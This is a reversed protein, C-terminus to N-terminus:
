CFEVLLCTADDSKKVRIHKQCGPDDHEISRIEDMLEALPENIIRKYLHEYSGVNFVDSYRSFGDSMLAILNGQDLPVHRIKLDQEGIESLSLISYGDPKNMFSRNERIIPKVASIIDQLNENPKEARRAKIANLIRKEFLEVSQDYFHGEYGHSNGYLALCDGLSSVELENEFRRVMVFAASPADESCFLDKGCGKLYEDKTVLIARNLIDITPLSFNNLLERELHGNFTRVFWYADSAGFVNNQAIGTAGDLLWAASSSWGFLDENLTGDGPSSCADLVSIDNKEFTM